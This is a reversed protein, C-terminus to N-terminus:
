HGCQSEATCRNQLLIRHYATRRTLADIAPYAGYGHCVRHVLPFKSTSLNMLKWGMVGYKIHLIRCTPNHVDTSTVAGATVAAEDELVQPFLRPSNMGLKFHKREVKSGTLTSTCALLRWALCYMCCAAWGLGAWGAWGLGAWGM